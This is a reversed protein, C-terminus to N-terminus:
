CVSEELLFSIIRLVFGVHPPLIVNAFVSNCVMAGINAFANTLLFWGLKFSYVILLHYTLMYSVFDLQM